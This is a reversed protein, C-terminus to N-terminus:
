QRIPLESFITGHRVLFVDRPPDRIREPESGSVCSLFPVADDV